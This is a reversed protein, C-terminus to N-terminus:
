PLRVELTSEVLLWRANQSQGSGDRQSGILGRGQAISHSYVRRPGPNWRAGNRPAHQVFECKAYWDPTFLLVIASFGAGAPAPKEAMTRRKGKSFIYLGM